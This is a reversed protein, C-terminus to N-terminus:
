EREERTNEHLGSVCVYECCFQKGKDDPCWKTCRRKGRCAKVLPHGALTATQNVTEDLVKLADDVAAQGGAKPVALPLFVPKGEYEGIQIKLKVSEDSRLAKDGFSWILGTRAGSAEKEPALIYESAASSLVLTGSKLAATTHAKDNGLLASTQAADMPRQQGQSMSALFLALFLYGYKM